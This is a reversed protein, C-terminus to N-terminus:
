GKNKVLAVAHCSIGEERGTFGLREETTAKINVRGQNIDLINAINEAMSNIYAAVKPKQAVLTVDINVVSYGHKKLLESVRQLLLLSSIDKYEGDTDPFHHGIDGLGGAGLLADMVAHTLVDADSHGLLGLTHPIDVGGLVLKRDPVLKHVDYGHGIRIEGMGHRRELIYEAYSIDDPTTIKINDKGTNVAFIEGGIREILMNDDTVADSFDLKKVAKAYLERSFVQPTQASFMGDRPITDTIIGSEGVKKLTDSIACAATAASHLYASRVVTNIMEPTVLCRAGDHIAVFESDSGIACFGLYASEARTKGGMVIMKIKKFDDSLENKAWVLEDERSVIVISNIEEALEFARVTHRLISEGHITLRQKPVAGGMRSGSGAALIIATVFPSNKTQL